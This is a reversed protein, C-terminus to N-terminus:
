NRPAPAPLMGFQRNVAEIKQWAAQHSPAALLWRQWRAHDAPSADSAQLLAFWAAAAELAHDITTM